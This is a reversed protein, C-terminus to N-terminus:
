MSYTSTLLEETSSRLTHTRPAQWEWAASHHSWFQNLHGPLRRSVSREEPMQMQSKQMNDKPLHPRFLTHLLAQVARGNLVINSLSGCADEMGPPPPPYQVKQSSSARFPRIIFGGGGKAM